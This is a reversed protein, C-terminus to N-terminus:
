SRAVGARRRWEEPLLLELVDDVAVIGVPAGSQDLVPMAVLNYDAMLRAVEPLDAEAPVTPLQSDMLESLPQGPEARVLEALSVADILAGHEDVVCVTAIAQPGLASARVRALADGVTSTVPVAVFDPNMLGGATSPNHGLLGKVKVQKAAPLLNLIPIRRDQQIELLLDAVDDSAMRGLVAAVQEDSRERLFEVQHQDDLEEFVDAELEKDQSVAELIEEGEEHSAAEVLDAIQAPHLGRLRRSGLKLRSTPVHGVFAEMDRWPVFHTHESDHGRFRRPLLRYVRARLSTDVGAVRWTGEECVLEVDRASVLSATQVNILSRDLVDARLLVEGPRREFQALNLKTTATRAAARELRDVRNMPVFMERGGIRAVLGVLAPLPDALDLRAVVDEIRGLREGASDLLPSGAVSSLHVIADPV